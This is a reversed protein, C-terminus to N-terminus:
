GPEEAHDDSRGSQGGNSRLASKLLPLVYSQGERIFSKLGAGRGTSATKGGLAVTIASLVASKGSGNHGTSADSSTAIHADIRSTGIIFNIQPGFNFSLLKHCMFQSM